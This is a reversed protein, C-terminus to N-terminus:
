PMHKRTGPAIGATLSPMTVSRAFTLNIELIPESIVKSIQLKLSVKPVNRANTHNLVPIHERMYSSTSHCPSGRPACRVPTHNIVPTSEKMNNAIPSVRSRKPAIVAVLIVINIPIKATFWDSTNESIISRRLHENVYRANTPNIMRTLACTYEYVERCRFANLVCIVPM